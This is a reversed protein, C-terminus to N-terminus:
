AAGRFSERGDAGCIDGSALIRRGRVVEKLGAVQIRLIVHVMVAGGGSIVFAGIRLLGGIMEGPGQVLNIVLKCSVFGREHSRMSANAVEEEFVRVLSPTIQIAGGILGTPIGM